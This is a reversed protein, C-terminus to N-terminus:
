TKAHYKSQRDEMFFQAPLPLSPSTHGRCRSCLSCAVGGPYPCPCSYGHAVSGHSLSRAPSSSSVHISSIDSQRNQTYEKKEGKAEEHPSLRLDRTPIFRRSASHEPRPLRACVFAGELTQFVPTGHRPAGPNWPVGETRSDCAGLATEGVAKRGRLKGRLCLQNRVLLIHM